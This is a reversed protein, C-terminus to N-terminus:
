TPQSTPPEPRRSVTIGAGVSLTAGTQFNTGTITVPVSSGVTGQTPAITTVTPAAAAVTFGGTLTGSQTDPNTVTVNRTGVTAGAAIALTATLQTASPLSVSSVTIGAGVSLTAGTQFNTGTITVPVSSGVSGQTPAIAT